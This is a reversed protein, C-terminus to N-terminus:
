QITVSAAPRPRRGGSLVGPQVQVPQQKPRPARSRIAEATPPYLHGLTGPEVRSSEIFADVDAAKVRIVRGFRYGPILGEDLFRYLTRLTVGLEEAARVTSLWVRTENNKGM